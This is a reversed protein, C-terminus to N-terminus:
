IQNAVVFSHRMLKQVGGPATCDGLMEFQVATGFFAAAEDDRSEYGVSLVVSDCEVEHETGEADAWVVKKEEIRTCRANVLFHFGPLALWAEEFPARFHVPASDDALRPLMEIVTVEQGNEALYMGTEVGIEGGGVIAVRQGLAAEAGYVDAASVV